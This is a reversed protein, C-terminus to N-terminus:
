KPLQIEDFEDENKANKHSKYLVGKQELVRKPFLIGQLHDYEHQLITSIFGSYNSQHTQGNEDQYTVKVKSSRTVSGWINPLSLCGELKVGSSKKTGKKVRKKVTSKILELEPNIFVLVESSPSEQVIFIQLSKGVQPAALGVGEPDNTNALTEKMELILQKIESTINIVRKAKQSLVSNPASLIKLM